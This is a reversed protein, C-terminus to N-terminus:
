QTRRQRVAAAGALYYSGLWSPNVPAPAPDSAAPAPPRTRADYRWLMPLAATVIVAGALCALGGSVIAVRTSGTLGSELNGLPEGTM